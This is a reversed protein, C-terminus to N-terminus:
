PCGSEGIFSGDKLVRLRWFARSLTAVRDADDPTEGAFIGYSRQLQHKGADEITERRQTVVKGLSLYSPQRIAQGLEIFGILAMTIVSIVLPAQLGQGSKGALIQPFAAKPSKDFIGQANLQPVGDADVVNYPPAIESMALAVPRVRFLRDLFRHDAHRFVLSAAHQYSVHHLIKSQIRGLFCSSACHDPVM